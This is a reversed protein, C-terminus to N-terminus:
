DHKKFLNKYVLQQKILKKPCKSHWKWQGSKIMGSKYQLIPNPQSKPKCLIALSIFHGRIDREKAFLENILIPNDIYNVEMGLENQAVFNIRNSMREKFRIIGGPFHWGPGYFKDERWTLLLMGKNNKIILDVNILPTLKSIFYFLNKPLGRRANLSYKYLTNLCILFINSLLKL